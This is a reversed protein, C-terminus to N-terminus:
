LSVAGGCPVNVVQLEKMGAKVRHSGCSVTVVGDTARRFSGDVVVARLNPDVRIVGTTAAAAPAAPAAAVPPPLATSGGAVPPPLAGGPPPLATSGGRAAARAPIGAPAPSGPPALTTTRAGPAPLSSGGSGFGTSGSGNSGSGAFNGSGTFGRPVAAGPVPASPLSSVDLTAPAVVPDAPSATSAPSTQAATTATEGSVESPSAAAVPADDSLARTAVYGGIGVLGVLAIAAGIIGGIALGSMGSRRPPPMYAHAQSVSPMRPRPTTVDLAVPAISSPRRQAAQMHQSGRQAPAATRSTITKWGASPAQLAAPMDARSLVETQDPGADLKAAAAQVQAMDHGRIELTKEPFADDVIISELPLPSTTPAAPVSILSAATPSAYDLKISIPAAEIVPGAAPPAPAAAVAAVPAAAVAAVPVPLQPSPLTTRAAVVEVEEADDFSDIEGVEFGSPDSPAAVAPQSPLPTEFSRIGAAAAEFADIDNTELIDDADLEDLQASADADPVKPLLRASPPM